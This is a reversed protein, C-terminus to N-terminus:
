LDELDEYEYNIMEKSLPYYADLKEGAIRALTDLDDFDMTEPGAEIIRLMRGQSEDRYMETIRTEEVMYRASILENLDLSLTFGDKVKVKNIEYVQDSIRKIKGLYKRGLYPLPYYDMNFRGSKIKKIVKLKNFLFEEEGLEDSYRITKMKDRM